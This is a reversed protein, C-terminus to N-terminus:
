GGGRPGPRRHLEALIVAAAASVNISQVPGKGPIHVVADCRKKVRESLGDRENGMVVVCPRPVEIEYLSTASQLDAGLTFVGKKRFDRLASPLDSCHYIPVIEWAGEAMRAASSTMMAQDDQTGTVLALAGFFGCSRLIAGLNHPNGVRDLAVVVGDSPLDKRILSHVSGPAIPRTVLVVGEHHYSAAVKNLSEADLQRYPLRQSQCWKKLPALQPSREKSFFMRRIDQPRNEFVALCANWGYVTFESERPRQIGPKRTKGKREPRKIKAPPTKLIRPM